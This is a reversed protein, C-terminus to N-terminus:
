GAVAANACGAHLADRVRNAAEHARTAFEGLAEGARAMSELMLPGAYQRPLCAGVAEFDTNGDGPLWHWDRRGDTDSVHMVALRGSWRRLLALPLESHLRDHAVDYCLGLAASDIHEFLFDLHGPAHTNEIALTVGADEACGVLRRFDEACDAHPLPLSRGRTVHMVMRPISHRACDSVWGCHLDVAGGRVDADESWFDNCAFYPVHLHDIDLGSDRIVAPVRDRIARIEAREEEWWVATMGFGAERLISLREPLPTTRTFSLHLGLPNNM